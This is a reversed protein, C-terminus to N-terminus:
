SDGFRRIASASMKVSDRQRAIRRSEVLVSFCGDLGCGDSLFSSDRVIGRFESLTSSLGLQRGTPSAPPPGCVRSSSRPPKESSGRVPGPGHHFGTAAWQRTSHSCPLHATATYCHLQLVSCTQTALNVRKGERERETERETEREPRHPLLWGTVRAELAQFAQVAVSAGVCKTPHIRGSWGFRELVNALVRASGLAECASPSGFIIDELYQIPGLGRGPAGDCRAHSLGTGACSSSASRACHDM